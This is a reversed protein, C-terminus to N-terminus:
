PQMEPQVSNFRKAGTWSCPRCAAVVPLDPDRRSRRLDPTGATAFTAPPPCLAEQSGPRRTDAVRFGMDPTQSTLLQDREALRTQQSDFALKAQTVWLLYCSRVAMAAQM